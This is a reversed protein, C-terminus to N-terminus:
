GDAIASCRKVMFRLGGAFNPGTAHQGCRPASTSTLVRLCRRIWEGRGLEHDELSVQLVGVHYELMAIRLGQAAYAAADIGDPERYPYAKLIEDRTRKAALVGVITGVTVRMGRICAKGGMVAPDLTIRTLNKM